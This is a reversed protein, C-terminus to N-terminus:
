KPSVFANKHTVWILYGLVDLYIKFYRKLVARKCRNDELYLSNFVIKLARGPFDLEKEHPGTETTRLLARGM